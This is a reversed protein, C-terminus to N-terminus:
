KNLRLLPSFQSSRRVVRQPCAKRIQFADFQERSRRSGPTKEAEDNNDQTSTAQLLRLPAVM